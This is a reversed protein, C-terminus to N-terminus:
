LSAVIVILLRGQQWPLSVVQIMLQKQCHSQKPHLEVIEGKNEGQTMARSPLSSIIERFCSRELAEGLGGSTETSCCEGTANIVLRSGRKAESRVRRRPMPSGGIRSVM